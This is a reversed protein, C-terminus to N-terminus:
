RKQLRFGIFLIYLFRQFLFASCRASHNSADQEIMTHKLQIMIGRDARLITSDEDALCLERGSDWGNSRASDDNYVLSYVDNTLIGEFRFLSSNSTEATSTAGFILFTKFSKPRSCKQISSKHGIRSKQQSCQRCCKNQWRRSVFCNEVM